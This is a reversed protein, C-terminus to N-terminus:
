FHAFILVQASRWTCLRQLAASATNQGRCENQLPTHLDWDWPLHATCGLLFICLILSVLNSPSTLSWRSWGKRAFGHDPCSLGAGEGKPRLLVWHQSDVGEGPFNNWCSITRITFFTGKMVVAVDGTVQVRKERNSQYSLAWRHVKTDWCTSGLM